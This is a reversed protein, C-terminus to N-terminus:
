RNVPIMFRQGKYSLITGQENINELFPGEELRDGERYPRSNVLVFRKEPDDSYVHVDINIPPLARRFDSPLAQLPAPQWNETQSSAKRDVTRADPLSDPLKIIESPTSSTEAEVVTAPAAAALSPTTPPLTPEPRKSNATAKAAGSQDTSPTQAITPDPQYYFYLGMLASVNGLLILSVAWFWWRRRPPPTILQAKELSPVQGLNRELEAKRLADLLYSM